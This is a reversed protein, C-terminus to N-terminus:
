RAYIVGEYDWNDSTTNYKVMTMELGSFKTLLEVWTLPNNTATFKFKVSRIPTGRPSTYNNAQLSVGQGISQFMNNLTNKLDIDSRLPPSNIARVNDLPLSILLSNGDDSIAKGSFPLGSDNLAKDIWSIRGVERTWTTSAGSSSCTIDGINWGPARIKKISLIAGLCQKMVAEPNKIEEWPMIEPPLEEVQQIKPAVPAIRPAKPPAFFLADMISWLLWVGVIASILVVLLLKNGRLAKIKQLKAGLGRQFLDALDFYQADEIEWEPPAIKYGWDPVALMSMFQEKAEEESLFLMDGDSLIIDNRVCTYWWGNNVKFVAVFSSVDSLASALSVAAVQEGNKYGEHSVCIGFQPSKGQKICFLDAGELIGESAEEVETYPDEFNQLPQWFLSTAYNAGDVVIRTGWTKSDEPEAGFGYGNNQNENEFSDTYENTLNTEEQM